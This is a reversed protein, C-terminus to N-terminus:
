MHGGRLSTDARQAAETGPYLAVLRSLTERGEAPRGLRDLTLGIMLLADPVKNGSPYADVVRRFSELAGAFEARDYRAQGILFLANDSYSHGPFRQVFNQFGRIAGALDGNKYLQYCLKYTGIPDDNPDDSARAAVAAGPAAPAGPPPLAAGPLPAIGINGAFAANDPPPVPGRPVSRRGREPGEADVDAQSIVYGENHGAVLGGGDGEDGSGDDTLTHAEDKPALRVVPLRNSAAAAHLKQAELDDELVEIRGKLGEIRKSAAEWADNMAKLKADQDAVRAQLEATAGGCATLLVVSGLSLLRLGFASSWLVCM